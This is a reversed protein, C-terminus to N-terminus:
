PSGRGRWGGCWLLAADADAAARDRQGVDVFRLFHPVGGRELLYLFTASSRFFRLTGPDPSWPAAVREAIPSSGAEDVTQDVRWMTSLRM